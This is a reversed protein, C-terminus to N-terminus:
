HSTTSPISLRAELAPGFTAAFTATLHNNDRYFVMEDREGDCRLAAPACFSAALDIVRDRGLIEQQAERTAPNWATARQFSCDSGGLIAADRRSLCVPTNVGTNPTDAIWVFPVHAADLRSRLAHLGTRYDAVTLQTEDTTRVYADSSSLIVLAPHQDAIEQLTADRWRTCEEYIRHLRDSYIKLPIPPCSDKIRVTLRWGRAQAIKEIPVFWQAAHSDGVLVVSTPSSPVGYVCDHEPHLALFPVTCKDSYVRPNDAKATAYRQQAPRLMVHTTYRRLAQVAILSLAVLMFAMAISIVARKRLWASARIPHELLRFTAVALLLSVGSAALPVVISAGPWVIRAAIILPWHWLYWSYSHRGIWQISRHGLLRALPHRPEAAGVRLLGATGLVPITAIWGPFLSLSRFMVCPVLVAALFVFPTAPAAIISRGVRTPVLTALAGIGFEWFRPPSAYFAWPQIRRTLVICLALSAITVVAMAGGIAVPVRNPLLRTALWNIVLLLLPWLLYFQEEVALSWTHLFPDVSANAGFYDISARAFRFNSLYVAASQGSRAINSLELPANVVVSLLLTAILVLAAAPALRRARRAYFGTFSVTHSRALEILILRTILYGSLVYFVDVGIYGGVLGPVGAHFGVVAVIALGRLGEIDPRFEADYRKSVPQTVSPDSM